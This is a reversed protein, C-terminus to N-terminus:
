PYFGALPVTWQDRKKCLVLSRWLKCSSRALENM